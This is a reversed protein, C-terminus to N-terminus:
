DAVLAVGKVAAPEECFTSVIWLFYVFVFFYLFYVFVFFYWFFVFIRLLVFFYQTVVSTVLAVGQVAAQEEFFLVLVCLFGCLFDSILSFIWLNVIVLFKAIVWLNM